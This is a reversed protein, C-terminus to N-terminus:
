EEESLQGILESINRDNRSIIRLYQRGRADNSARKLIRIINDNHMREHKFEIGLTQAVENWINKNEERFVEISKLVGNIRQERTSTQQKIADDYPKM